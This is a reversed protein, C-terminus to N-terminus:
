SRPFPGAKKYYKTPKIRRSWELDTDVSKIVVWVNGDKDREYWLGTKENFWRFTM